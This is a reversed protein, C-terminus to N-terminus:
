KEMNEGTKGVKNEGKNEVKNEVKKKHELQICEV